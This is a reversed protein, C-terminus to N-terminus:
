RGQPSSIAPWWADSASCGGHSAWCTPSSGCASSASEPEQGASYQQLVFVVGLLVAAGLTTVYDVDMNVISTAALLNSM